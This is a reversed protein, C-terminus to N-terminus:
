EVGIGGNWWAVAGLAFVIVLADSIVTAFITWYRGVVRVYGAYPEPLVRAITGLMGGSRLQGREMFFRSSQLVVEVSAFWFFLRSGVESGALGDNLSSRDRASLSGTFRKPSSITVALALILSTLAHLLRWTAASVTPPPPPAPSSFQDQAQEQGFNGGATGQLLQALGPPLANPNNPDLGGSGTLLQQMMKMMPDEGTPHPQQQQQQQQGFKARGSQQSSQSSQSPRTQSQPFYQEVNM